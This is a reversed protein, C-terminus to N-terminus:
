RLMRGGSKLVEGGKMVFNVSQLVRIDQLPNGSVAVIDAFRGAQISGINEGGDVLEAANITSALIADRPTMGAAVMLAFEEAKNRKGSAGQDSGLAIKVGAAYATTVNRTMVPVVAKAKEAVGPPLSAPADTAQRLVVDGVLLTPVLFTGHKKMLSYTGATAYTGHEVSDVGAIVAAEIANTGHAHAAVKMGLAHAADVAAQIEPLSMTMAQPDDGISTVGGSPYIKIVNAGNRHHARVLAVVADPGDAVTGARGDFSIDPRAGNAPDSHGGTPGIPQMSSWIRPGVIKGAAIGRILAPATLPGSGLDRVSTFGTEIEIRANIVANVIADGETLVFRNIPQREGTSSIHDHSDIFGPLVTQNRLDIVEADTATMYGAVVAAIRDGRIIVSMEKRPPGETGDILVGAHIVTDRAYAAAALLPYMLSIAAIFATARNHSRLRRLTVSCRRHIIAAACETRRARTFDFRSKLNIGPTLDLWFV